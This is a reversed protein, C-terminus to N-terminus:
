LSGVRVIRRKAEISEDMLSGDGFLPRSLDAMDMNPMGNATYGGFIQPPPNLGGHPLHDSNPINDVSSHRRELARFRIDSDAEPIGRALRISGTYSNNSGYSRISSSSHNSGAYGSYIGPKPSQTSVSELMPYPESTSGVKHLGPSHDHRPLSFAQQLQEREEREIRNREEASLMKRYEVRLKRGQLELHNMASIVHRTEELHAFNAFAIGRFMGNDFHYNFAYPLPLEMESMLAVLQEKKVTFPINKIVIATEERPLRTLGGQQIAQMMRPSSQCKMQPYVGDAWLSLPSDSVGSKSQVIALSLPVPVLNNSTKLLVSTEKGGSSLSTSISPRQSQSMSTEARLGLQDPWNFGDGEGLILANIRHSDSKRLLSDDDSSTASQSPCHTFLRREEEIDARGRPFFSGDLTPRRM